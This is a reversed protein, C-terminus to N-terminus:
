PLDDQIRTLDFLETLIYFLKDLMMKKELICTNNSAICPPLHSVSGREIHSDSGREIM